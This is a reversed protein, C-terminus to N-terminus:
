TPLGLEKRIEETTYTRQERGAKFGADIVIQLYVEEMVDHWTAGDPLKDAIHHLEDRITATHGNGDM